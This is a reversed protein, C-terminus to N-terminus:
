VGYISRTFKYNQAVQAQTLATNYVHFAGLRFNGYAVGGLNTSCPWAIAYYLGRSVNGPTERTYTSTGASQANVYATLSTGNYVFGVYYWTNLNTAISSTIRPTGSVYPWTAFRLTGATREIQSDFWNTDPTTTGQESLLTGNGSMYVWMFISIILSTTPPSLRPNLDTTTTSWQNTGNFTISRTGTSTYSPSNTLTTNTNGRLDTVTTGSTYCASNQFDYKVIMGSSLTRGYNTRNGSKSGM